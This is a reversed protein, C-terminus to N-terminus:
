KGGAARKIEEERVCRELREFQARMDSLSSALEAYFTHLETDFEALTDLVRKVQEDAVALKPALQEACAFNSSNLVLDSSRQVQQLM